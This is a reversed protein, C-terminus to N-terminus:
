VAITLLQNHRVLMIVRAEFVCSTDISLHALSHSTHIPPLL